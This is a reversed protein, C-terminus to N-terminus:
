WLHVTMIEFIEVPFVPKMYLEVFTL